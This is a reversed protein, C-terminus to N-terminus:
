VSCMYVQCDVDGMQGSWLADHVLVAIHTERYVPKRSLVCGQLVIARAMVHRTLRVMCGKAEATEHACAGHKTNEEDNMCWCQLIDFMRKNRLVCKNDAPTSFVPHFVM